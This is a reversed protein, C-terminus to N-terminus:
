LGICPEAAPAREGAEMEEISWPRWATRGAAADAADGAAAAGAVAELTQPPLDLVTALNEVVLNRSIELKGRRPVFREIGPGAGAAATRRVGTVSRTM